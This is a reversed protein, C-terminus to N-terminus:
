GKTLSGTGFGHRGHVKAAATTDGTKILTISYHAQDGFFVTDPTIKTYRVDFPVGAETFSVVKGQTISISIPWPKVSGLTGSWSGDWSGADAGRSAQASFLTATLIAAASFRRGITM